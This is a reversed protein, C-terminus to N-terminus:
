ENSWDVWLSADYRWSDLLAEELLKDSYVLLISNVEMAKICNAYGSPLCIIESRKDSLTFIDPKLDKSPTNWNDPRLFALKFSGSICYFWKKEFQHAHWGRVISQDPHYITYMRKIDEFKFSNLSSIKGRADEFIEGEVVRIESM